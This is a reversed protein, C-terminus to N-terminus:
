PKCIPCPKLGRAKVQEKSLKVGTQSTTPGYPCGIRHYLTTDGYLTNVMYYEEEKDGKGSGFGTDTGKKVNSEETKPKPEKVYGKVTMCHRAEGYHILSLIGVTLLIDVALCIGWGRNCEERDKPFQEQDVPQGDKRSWGKSGVCGTVVFFVLVMALIILKKM